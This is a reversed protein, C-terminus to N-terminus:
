HTLSSRVPPPKYISEDLTYECVRLGQQQSLTLTLKLNEDRVTAFDHTTRIHSKM